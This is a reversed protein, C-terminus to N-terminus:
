EIELFFFREHGSWDKEVKKKKWRPHEFLSILAEGQGTGIEFWAHGGPNLLRPLGQELRRYCEIGEEGAVLAMRPEHERVERELMAYEKEAIYPPNSVVYDLKLGELPELLDGQIFEVDVNNQLANEKAIALARDSLDTLFVKLEPLRKKIAIGICGSGCCVDALTKEKCDVSELDKVIQDVLIETEQRPILVDPSVKIRCGFFDVQGHIYALPEGAARRKLASRCDAMEEETLPRDYELYLDIRKKDLADAILDEAERRSRDVGNEHLYEACLNIIELVTKM